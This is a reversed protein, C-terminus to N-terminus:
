KRPMECLMPDHDQAAQRRGPQGDVQNVTVQRTQRIM